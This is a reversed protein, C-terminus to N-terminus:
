SSYDLMTKLQEPSPAGAIRCLMEQIKPDFPRDNAGIVPRNRWIAKAFGMKQSPTLNEWRYSVYDAPPEYITIKYDILTDAYNHKFLGKAQKAECTDYFFLANGRMECNKPTAFCALRRINKDNAKENNVIWESLPQNYKELWLKDFHQKTTSETQKTEQTKAM